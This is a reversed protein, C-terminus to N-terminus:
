AVETKELIKVLLENIAMEKTESIDNFGFAASIDAARDCISDFNIRVGNIFRGEIREELIFVRNLSKSYYERKM